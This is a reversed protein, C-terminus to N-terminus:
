DLVLVQREPPVWPLDELFVNPYDRVTPVDDVIEKGKDHTDM